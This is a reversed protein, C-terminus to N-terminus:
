WCRASGTSATRDGTQDLGLTGCATDKNAQMGQPVAQLIYANASPSNAGFQYIYSGSTQSACDFDAPLTAGTYHMNTTYYRELYNAYESLCSEAAVRRTKVMHSVYSPYAIAMLVAVIVVAIMLEILSFGGARGGPMAPKGTASTNM